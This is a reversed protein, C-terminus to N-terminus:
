AIDNPATAGAAMGGPLGRRALLRAGAVTVAGGLAAGGVARLGTGGALAAGAALGALPLLFVVASRWALAAGHLLGADQPEM